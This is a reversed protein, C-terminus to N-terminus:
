ASLTAGVTRVVAAFGGGPVTALHLNSQQSSPPVTKRLPGSGMPSYQTRPLALTFTTTSPTSAIEITGNHAKAIERAIYLGLGIGAGARRGRAPRAARKLPDFIVALDGTPIPEGENSVSVSVEDFRGDASVAIDAGARGHDIVNELLNTLIQSLRSGDWVGELQGTHQFSIKENPHVAIIEAISNKCIVELNAHDANLPLLDGLRFRTFDLLNNVIVKMREASRYITGATAPLRESSPAVVLYQASASVASLSTRLDHALIGIFLDRMRDLSSSYRGISELLLQDIAEDFRVLERLGPRQEDGSAELWHRVVSARLARYEGVLDRLSLAQALRQEAHAGAVATIGPSNDPSRGEGKAVRQAETQPRQMEAVIQQLM